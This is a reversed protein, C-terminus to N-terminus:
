STGKLASNLIEVLDTIIVSSRIAKDHGVGEYNKVKIFQHNNLFEKLYSYPSITDMSDYFLWHNLPVDFKYWNDLSFHSAPVGFKTMFRDLFATQSVQPINLAEMSAEFNEKLRVLPTLSILLSPTIQMEGLAIINAM